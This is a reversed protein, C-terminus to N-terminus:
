LAELFANLKEKESMEWIDWVIVTFEKVYDRLSGKQKLGSLKWRAILAVGWHLLSGNEIGYALVSKMRKPM